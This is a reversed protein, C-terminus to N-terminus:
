KGTLVKMTDINLYLISTFQEKQSKKVIFEQLVFMIYLEGWFFLREDNGGDLQELGTHTEEATSL